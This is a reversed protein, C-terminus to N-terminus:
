SATAIAWPPASCPEGWCCSRDGGEEGVRKERMNLESVEALLHGGVLIIAPSTDFGHARPGSGTVGAGSRVRTARKRHRWSRRTLQEMELPHQRV